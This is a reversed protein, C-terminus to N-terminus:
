PNLVEYLRRAQDDTFQVFRGKFGLREAEQKAREMIGRDGEDECKRIWAFLGRGTQVEPRHGSGQARAPPPDDRRAPAVAQPQSAPARGTAATANRAAFGPVGDRYLYRAIGFKVCARKFADSYGSKETNDEEPMDAFGGGDTKTVRRGDPLTITLKCMLGDKTEIMEDEWNEPGLVEDLRNMATRATIYSLTTGRGGPRQKVQDGAFPAALAAFLEPFQTPM